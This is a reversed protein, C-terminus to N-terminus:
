LICQCHVYVTVTKQLVARHRKLIASVTAPTAFVLEADLEAKAHQQVSVGTPGRRGSTVATSM